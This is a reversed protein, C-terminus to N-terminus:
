GKGVIFLTRDATQVTDTVIKFNSFPLASLFIDESAVAGAGITFSLTAPDGGVCFPVFALTPHHSVHLEFTTGDMVAPFIIGMYLADGLYFPSSARQGSLVKVQIPTIERTTM